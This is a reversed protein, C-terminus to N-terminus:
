LIDFCYRRRVSRLKEHLQQVALEHLLQRPGTLHQTSHIPTESQNEVHTIAKFVTALFTECHIAAKILSKSM